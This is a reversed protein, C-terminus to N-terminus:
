NCKEHVKKKYYLIIKTSIHIAYIYHIFLSFLFLIVVLENPVLDVKYKPVEKILMNYLYIINILDIFYM